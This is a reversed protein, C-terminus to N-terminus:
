PQLISLLDEATVAQVGMSDFDRVDRTVLYDAGVRIAAAAQIGDEFDRGPVALARDIAPDDLPVTRFLARIAKIETLAQDFGVNKREVYFINNFSIASVYGAIKGTEALKWIHSAPDSFPKRDQLVDLLINTDLLVIM